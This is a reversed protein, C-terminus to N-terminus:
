VLFFNIWKKQLYSTKVTLFFIDVIDYKINLIKANKESLLTFLYDTTQLVKPRKGPRPLPLSFLNKFKMKVTSASHCLLSALPSLCVYIYM